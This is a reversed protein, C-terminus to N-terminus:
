FPFRSSDKLIFTRKFNFYDQIIKLIALTYNQGLYDLTQLQGAFLISSDSM